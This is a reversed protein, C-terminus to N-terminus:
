GADAGGGGHGVDAGAAPRRGTAPAAPDQRLDGPLTPWEGVQLRLDADIGRLYALDIPDGAHLQYWGALTDIAPPEETVQQDRDDPQGIPAGSGRPVQATGRLLAALDLVPATLEGSLRPRPGQLDIVLDGQLQNSGM